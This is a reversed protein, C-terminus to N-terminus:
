VDTPAANTYHTIKAATKYDGSSKALLTREISLRMARAFDCERALPGKSCGQLALSSPGSSSRGFCEHGFLDLRPYSEVNSRGFVSEEM